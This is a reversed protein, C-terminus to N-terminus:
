SKAFCLIIVQLVVEFFSWLFFVESFKKLCRYVKLFNYFELYKWFQKEFVKM